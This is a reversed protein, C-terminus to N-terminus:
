AVVLPISHNFGARVNANCSVPKVMIGVTWARYNINETNGVLMSVKVDGTPYHPSSWSVDHGKRTAGFYVLDNELWVITVDDHYIQLQICSYSSSDLIASIFEKSITAYVSVRAQVLGLSIKENGHIAHNTLAYTLDLLDSGSTRVEQCDKRMMPRRELEQRAKDLDEFNDPNFEEKGCVEWRDTFLNPPTGPTPRSGYWFAVNSYEYHETNGIRFDLSSSFPIVDHNLFVRYASVYDAREVAHTMPSKSRGLAYQFGHTDTGPMKNITPTCTEFFNDESGLGRMLSAREPISHDLVLLEGGNHFWLDDVLDQEEKSVTVGMTFGLLYGHQEYAQALLLQNQSLDLVGPRIQLRLPEHMAVTYEEYNLFSWYYLTEETTSQFTIKLGSEFPAPVKLVHAGNSSVSYLHNAAPDITGVDSHHIGFLSNLVVEVSPETSGDVYMRLIVKDFVDLFTCTEPRNGHTNTMTISLTRMCGPKGPEVEHVLTEEQTDLKGRQTNRRVIFDDPLTLLNHFVKRQQSPISPNDSDLQRTSSSASSLQGSTILNQLVLVVAVSGLLMTMVRTSKGMTGLRDVVNRNKREHLIALDMEVNM